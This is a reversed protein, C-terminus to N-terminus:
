SNLRKHSSHEGGPVFATHAEETHVGKCTYTDASEKRDITKKRDMHVTATEKAEKSIMNAGGGRHPLWDCEWSGKSM